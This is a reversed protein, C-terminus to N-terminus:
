LAALQDRNAVIPLYVCFCFTVVCLFYFVLIVICVNGLLSVAFRLIEWMGSDYLLDLGFAEKYETIACTSSQNYVWLTLSRVSSQASCPRSRSRWSRSLRRARSRPKSTALSRRATPAFTAMPFKRNFVGVISFRFKFIVWFYFQLYLCIMVNIFVVLARVTVAPKAEKAELM